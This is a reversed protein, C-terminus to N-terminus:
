ARLSYNTTRITACGVVWAFVKIPRTYMIEDPKLNTDRRMDRLVSFGLQVDGAKCHGKLITSFTVINPDVHHTYTKRIQPIPMNRQRGYVM